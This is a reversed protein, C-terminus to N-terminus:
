MKINRILLIRRDSSPLAKIHHRKLRIDLFTMEAGEIKFVANELIAQKRCGCLIQPAHGFPARRCCCRL